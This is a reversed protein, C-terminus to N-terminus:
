TCVAAERKSNKFSVEENTRQFSVRLASFSECYLLCSPFLNRPEPFLKRRFHTKM